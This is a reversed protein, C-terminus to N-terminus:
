SIAPTQLLSRLEVCIRECKVALRDRLLSLLAVDSPPPACVEVYVKVKPETGSPRVIIRSSDSLFLRVGDTASLTSSGVRLDERSVVPYSAFESVTPSLLRSFLEDVDLSELRLSFSIPM